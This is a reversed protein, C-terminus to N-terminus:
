AVCADQESETKDPEKAVVITWQSKTNFPETLEVHGIITSSGGYLSSVTSIVAQDIEAPTLAAAVKTRDAVLALITSLTVCLGIRRKWSAGLLSARRNSRADLSPSPVALTSMAAPRSFRQNSRV